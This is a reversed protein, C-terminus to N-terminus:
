SNVRKCEAPDPLNVFFNLTPNHAMLYTGYELNLDYEDPREEEPDEIKDLIAQKM